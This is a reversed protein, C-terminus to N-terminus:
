ANLFLIIKNEAYTFINQERLNKKNDKNKCYLISNLIPYWLWQEKYYFTLGVICLCNWMLWCHKVTIGFFNLVNLQYQSFM